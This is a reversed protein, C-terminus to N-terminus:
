LDESWDHVSFTDDPEIQVYFLADFGESRQPVQLMKYTGLVGQLPVCLRGERANNRSLADQLSSRFYFGVVRFGFRKAASIYVSRTSSQPNTNDIVFPQKAELCAQLALTERRRTKLIDMSIHAHTSAFRRRYFTSKGTAQLGCFLVAEM